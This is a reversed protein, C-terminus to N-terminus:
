PRNWAGAARHLDHPSPSPGARPLDPPLLDFANRGQVQERPRGVMRCLHENFALLNGHVDMLFAVESSANLLALMTQEALRDETIDRLFYAVREVGGQANVVPYVSNDMLRGEFLDVWREPRGSSIARGIPVARSEALDPPLLVFAIRGQVKVRPAISWGDCTDNFALM